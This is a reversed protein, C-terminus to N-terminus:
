TSSKSKLFLSAISFRVLGMFDPSDDLKRVAASKDQAFINPRMVEIHGHLEILFSAAIAAAVVAIRLLRLLIEALPYFVIVPRVVDTDLFDIAQVDPMGIVM